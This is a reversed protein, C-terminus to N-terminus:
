EATNNGMIYENHFIQLPPPMFSSIIIKERIFRNAYEESLSEVAVADYSYEIELPINEDEPNADFETKTIKVEGLRLIECEFFLKLAKKLRANTMTLYALRDNLWQPQSPEIGNKDNFDFNAFLTLFKEIPAPEGRFGVSCSGTTGWQCKLVQVEESVLSEYANTYITPISSMLAIM